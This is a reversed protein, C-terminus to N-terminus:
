PGTKRKKRARAKEEYAKVLTPANMDDERVWQNYESPWGTWKVLYEVRGNRLQQKGRVEEVEYEDPEDDLEPLPMTEEDDRSNWKEM